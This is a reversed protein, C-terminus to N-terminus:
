QRPIPRVERLPNPVTRNASMQEALAAPLQSLSTNMAEIKTNIPGIQGQLKGLNQNIGDIARLKYNLENLSTNLEPIGEKKIAGIETLLGALNQNIGDKTYLYGNLQSINESLSKYDVKSLILTSSALYPLQQSIADIDQKLKGFPKKVNSIESLWDNLTKVQESFKDMSEKLPLVSDQFTGGNKFLDDLTKATASWVTSFDNLKLTAEKALYTTSSAVRFQKKASEAAKTLDDPM